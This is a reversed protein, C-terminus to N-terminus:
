TTGGEPWPNAALEGETPPQPLSWARWEIGYLKPISGSVEIPLRKARYIHGGRVELVVGGGEPLALVEALTLIRNKNM